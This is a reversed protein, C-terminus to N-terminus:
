HPQPDKQLATPVGCGRAGREGSGALGGADSRESINSNKATSKDASNPGGPNKSMHDKRESGLRSSLIDAECRWFLHQGHVLEAPFAESLPRDARRRQGTFAAFYENCRGWSDGESFIQIRFNLPLANDLVTYMAQFM